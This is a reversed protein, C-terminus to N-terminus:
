NGQMTQVVPSFAGETIEGFDFIAHFMACRPGPADVRTCLMHLDELDALSVITGREPQFANSVFAHPITPHPGEERHCIACTTRDGVAQIVRLFPADPALPATVPLGIEGKLTRTTGMWEGFELLKSGDGEPVVGIVVKPLMLFIRPAGSGGAPQASIVGSTAVVALPRPLSAVFCPGDADPLLANLRAVADGISGIEGKTEACRRLAEGAVHRGADNAATGGADTQM